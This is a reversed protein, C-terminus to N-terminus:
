EHLIVVYDTLRTARIGLASEMARVVGIPDGAEFVGTVRLERAKGLVTLYGRHYRALTTIVEALPRNVFVLKGRRWATADRADVKTPTTISLGPGYTSQQGEGLIRTEGRSTVAVRHRTVTVTARSDELAIDFATGLAIISGGAVRVVFPRAPNPAAEFFAEGELLALKREAGSYDVGIASAPALEVHSGDALDVHRTEGTGTRFDARWLISLEDFSLVLAVSGVALGALVLRRAHSPRAGRAASPASALARVQGCLAVVEDFAARHSPDAALWTEFADRDARSLPAADRKVWWAIAAAHVDPDDHPEKAVNM